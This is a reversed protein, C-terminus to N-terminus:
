AAGEAAYRRLHDFALASTLALSAQAALSRVYRVDDEDLELEGLELALVARLAGDAVIGILRDTGRPIVIQTRLAALDDDDLVIPTRDLAADNTPVPRLEAERVEYAICPRHYNRRLNRTSLALVDYAERAERLALLTRDFSESRLRREDPTVIARAKPNPRQRRRCM